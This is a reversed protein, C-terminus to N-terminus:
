AITEGRSVERWLSASSDYVLTLVINDKLTCSLGSMLSVGTGDDIKVTNTDSTGELTLVDGQNGAVIQPSATIDIAGGSGVVQM